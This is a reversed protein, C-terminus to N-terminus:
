RSLRRPFNTLGSYLCELARADDALVVVADAEPLTADQQHDGIATGHVRRGMLGIVLMIQILMQPLNKGGLLAHAAHLDAGHADPQIQPDEVTLPKSDIQLVIDVLGQQKRHGLHAAMEADLAKEVLLKTLQKLLGNEGILDEPKKYDALLSALLAEPVDHKKTSM